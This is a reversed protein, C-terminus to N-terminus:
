GRAVGLEARGGLEEIFGEAWWHVDESMVVERLAAMRRRREDDPMTLADHLSAAVGEGDYPNVVLAETLRDAAGTFESLVLVGDGDSRSAVFEKAVLNMGDRLATVLMVDAARYLGLLQRRSVSKHVYRLPTWTPTGLEGNIRGVLGDIENRFKRYGGVSERSPVAVQIMRVKGQWEPHSRLLQEFSLLRRAIGKSYDLRDIGVLLREAGARLAIREKEIEPASAGASFDAADVGMPHVGLSIRRGQWEVTGDADMEIRLLRRLAATFHGRYRRTHFGIVDSGLMGEVLWRRSPLTFFIEPNPFPIHLFFGIRAEPLRERLLHPLRFLQYDHVWILDGPQYHEAVADAFRENVTEYIDWGGINMPLQDVRDHCIPWIVSNCIHDYYVTQEAAPVEVHVARLKRLQEQVSALSREALKTFDGAWGIWLGGSREHPGRMGTALGGSSQRVIAQGRETGVTVPLRNSVILLRASSTV